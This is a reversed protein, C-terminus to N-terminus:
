FIGLWLCVYIIANQKKKLKPNKTEGFVIVVFLLFCLSNMLSFVLKRHQLRLIQNFWFFFSKCCSLVPMFCCCCNVLFLHISFHMSIHFFYLYFALWPTFASPFVLLCLVMLLQLIIIEFVKGNRDRHRDRQKRSCATNTYYYAPM